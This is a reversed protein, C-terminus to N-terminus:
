GGIPKPEFPWPDYGGADNKQQGGYIIAERVIYKGITFDFGERYKREWGWKEAMGEVVQRCLEESWTRWGTDTVPEPPPEIVPPIDTADVTLSAISWWYFADEDLCDILVWQGRVPPWTAIIPGGGEAVIKDGHGGDSDAVHVQWKRPNDNDDVARANIGGIMASTDLELWFRMTRKRAVGSTWRTAALGDYALVTEGPNDTASSSVIRAM